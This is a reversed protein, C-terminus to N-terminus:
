FVRTKLVYIQLDFGVSNRSLSNPIKSKINPIKDNLSNEHLWVCRNKEKFTLKENKHQEPWFVSLFRSINM